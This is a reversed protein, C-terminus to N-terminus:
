NPLRLDEFIFTYFETRYSTPYINGSKIKHYAAHGDMFGMVSKNWDGCSKNNRIKFNLSSNNVVVDATEDNLWVMRSPQFADSLRLRDCGFNFARDFASVGGRAPIRGNLQDWWKVNFHYSTGVDDYSSIPEYVENMDDWNPDHQHSNTDFPSRYVDLKLGTQLHREAATPALRAPAPPAFIAVEPYLYPNLPRDAAEIDFAGGSRTYWYTDPNKGGFSWTCWGAAAPPPSSIPPNYRGPYALVLPMYQKYDEKYVMAGATIQRVNSLSISLRASFRAGCLSPLLIAVLLAIIAIVVLLEILTFGRRTDRLMLTREEKMLRGVVLGAIWFPGPGGV